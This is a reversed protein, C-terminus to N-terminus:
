PTTAPRSGPTTWPAPRTFSPWSKPTEPKVNAALEKLRRHDAEGATALAHILPLTVRGERLDAVVEKGLRQVGRHLGPHRGGGPLHHGSEPRDPDPGRGPGASAGALIAGIQCAAAMLIATKRTIVEFYEAETLKLNGAHILQLIEGEAMQTTTNALVKLIKLKDTTVALSLAKALLFDGM